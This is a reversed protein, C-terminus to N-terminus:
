AHHVVRTNFCIVHPILDLPEESAFMFINHSAQVHSQGFKKIVTLETQKDIQSRHDIWCNVAVARVENVGTISYLKSALSCGRARSVHVTVDVCYTVRLHVYHVSLQM